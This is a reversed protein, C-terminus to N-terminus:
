LQSKSRMIHSHLSIQFQAKPSGLKDSGAGSYDKHDCGSGRQSDVLDMVFDLDVAGVQWAGAPSWCTWGLSVCTSLRPCIAVFGSAQVFSSSASNAVSADSMHPVCFRRSSFPKLTSLPLLIGLPHHNVALM